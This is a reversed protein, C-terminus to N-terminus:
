LETMLVPARKGSFTSIRMAASQQEPRCAAWSSTSELPCGRLTTWRSTLGCFMRTPTEPTEFSMSKPTALAAPRSLWSVEAPRTLPLIWYAEGSCAIPLGRSRRESRQAIPVTM